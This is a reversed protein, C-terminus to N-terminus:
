IFDANPSAGFSAKTRKLLGFWILLFTPWILGIGNLAFVLAMSSGRSLQPGKAFPSTPNDRMWQEVEIVQRWGFYINTLTLLISVAAWLMHLSRGAMNRRMTQVGAVILLIALIFGFAFMGAQWPAIRMSPPLPGERMEPPMMAPGILIGGIGCALCTLGLGGWVISLIGIVKPWSTPALDIQPDLPASQDEM